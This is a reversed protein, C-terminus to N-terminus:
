LPLLPLSLLLPPPRARPPSPSFGLLAVSWASLLCFAFCCFVFLCAALLAICNLAAVWTFRLFFFVFCVFWFLNFLFLVVLFIHVGVRFFFARVRFGFWFELFVSCWWTCSLVVGFVGAMWPVVCKLHVQTCWFGAPVKKVTVGPHATLSAIQNTRMSRTVDSDVLLPRQSGDM